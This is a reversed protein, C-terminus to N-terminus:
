MCSYPCEARDLDQGLKGWLVAGFGLCQHRGLDGALEPGRHVHSQKHTLETFRAGQPKLTVREVHRVEQVAGPGTRWGSALARRPVKGPRAATLGRSAGLGSM